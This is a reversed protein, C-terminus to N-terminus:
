AKRQAEIWRAADGPLMVATGEKRSRRGAKMVLKDKSVILPCGSGSALDFFKQDLPDRCRALADKAPSAPRRAIRFWHTLIATQEEPSLRFGPRHIVEAFENETAEDRLMTCTGGEILRLLAETKPDHFAWFDLLVNTDVIVTLASSDPPDNAAPASRLQDLIGPIGCGNANPTPKKTLLFFVSPRAGGPRHLLPLRM